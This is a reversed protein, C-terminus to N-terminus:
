SKWNEIRGVKGNVMKMNLFMYEELYKGKLFLCIKNKRFILVHPLLINSTRARNKKAAISACYNSLPQLISNTSLVPLLLDYQLRDDELTHRRKPSKGADSKYNGVNRCNYILRRPIV